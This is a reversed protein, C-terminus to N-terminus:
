FSADAIKKLLYDRFAMIRKSSRENEHYVLYARFAPSTVDELIRVMDTSGRVLYEPLTALGIGARVAQLAGYINNIKLVPRRAPGNRGVQVIWNVDRIPASSSPGYIILKHHDLDAVTTPTGHRALYDASGYIYQRIPMLPRQILDALEPPQFLIAVDAERATLDLEQDSLLIQVDIEPYLEIFERINHTLWTSGFSLTSTIKLEGQPNERGELLQKETRRIRSIVDEATQFLLEGEQTLTLGRAHRHFLAVNLEEELSRIQRSVASQSLNLHEGARTFSGTEAVTHFIRLKDWDM